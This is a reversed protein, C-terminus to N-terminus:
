RDNTRAPLEPSPRLLQRALRNELRTVSWALGAIGIATFLLVSWGASDHVAKLAEAGSRHATLSLFLSRGFNGMVALAVGAFLFFVKWGPRRLTLDGIFLAAMISSQLSRVGSCAEDVGVTTNPLRIDAPNTGTPLGHM